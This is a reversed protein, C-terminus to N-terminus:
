TDKRFFAAHPHPPRKAMEEMHRKQEDRKQKIKARCKKCRVAKACYYAQVEEYWWKQQPATWIEKAGCDICEFEQDYYFEPAIGFGGKGFNIKTSDVPLRSQLKNKTRAYKM